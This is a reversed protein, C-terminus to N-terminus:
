DEEPANSAEGFRSRRARQAKFDDALQGIFETTSGKYHLADSSLAVNLERAIATAYRIQKETPPQIERDLCHMFGEAVRAAIRKSLVVTNYTEAARDFQLRWAELLSNQVPLDIRDYEELMLQPPM